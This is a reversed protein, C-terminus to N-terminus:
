AQAHDWPALAQHQDPDRKTWAIRSNGAQSAEHSSGLVADVGAHLSGTCLCCTQNAGTCSAIGAAAQVLGATVLAGPGEAVDVIGTKVVGSGLTPERPHSQAMLAWAHLEEHAWAPEKLHDGARRSVQVHPYM